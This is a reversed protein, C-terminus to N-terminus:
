TPDPFKNDQFTVVPFLISTNDAFETCVDTLDKPHGANASKIIVVSLLWIDKIVEDKM